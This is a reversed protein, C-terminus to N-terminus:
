YNKKYNKTTKLVILILSLNFIGGVISYLGISEFANLHQASIFLVIFRTIFLFIEYYLFYKQKRLVQIAVVAPRNIFSFYLWVILLSSFVGASGWGTGLFFEFIRPSFLIIGVAPLFAILALLLTAKKLEKYLNDNKNAHDSFKQLFVQNFADGILAIPLQILKIGLAYYGVTTANYFIGLLLPPISISAANIMAQTSSYLPFDKYEFLLKFWSSVNLNRKIRSGDSKWVQLALVLSGLMQGTVTGIFLGLSHVKGVGLGIQTATVGGAQTVRSISVRKFQKNRTSWYNLTNYLGMALASLPLIWLVDEIETIGFVSVINKGFLLILLYYVMCTIVCISFCLGLINIAVREEKPLVIAMEYRCTSLIILVGAISSFIALAGFADPSYLRTLIPTVGVTLLQAVVTGSMLLSLNRMFKNKFILKVM